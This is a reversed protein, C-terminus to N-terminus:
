KDLIFKILNKISEVRKRMACKINLKQYHMTYYKLDQIFMNIINKRIIYIIILKLQKDPIM